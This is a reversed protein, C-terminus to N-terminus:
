TKEERLLFTAPYPSVSGSLKSIGADVYDSSKEVFCLFIHWILSLAAEKCGWFCFNWLSHNNQPLKEGSVASFVCWNM